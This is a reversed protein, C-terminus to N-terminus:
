EPRLMDRWIGSARGAILWYVLGGALGATLFRFPDPTAVGITATDTMGEFGSWVELTAVPVSGALLAIAAGAAVFLLINRLGFLEAVLVAVLSPLFAIAGVFPVLTIAAFTWTVADVGSVGEPGSGYWQHVLLAAAAGVALMYGIVSRLMQGFFAGAM